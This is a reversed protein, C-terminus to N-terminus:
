GGRFAFINSSVPSAPTDLNAVASTPPRPQYDDNTANNVNGGDVYHWITNDYKTPSPSGVTYPSSNLSSGSISTTDTKIEYTKNKSTKSKRRTPDWQERHRGYIAM